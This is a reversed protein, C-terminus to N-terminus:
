ATEGEPPHDTAPTNWPKEHLLAPLKTEWLAVAAKAAERRSMGPPDDYTGGFCHCRKLQHGVSGVIGRMGCEYHIVRGSADITGTDGDVVAEACLLCVQGLPTAVQREYDKKREPRGFYGVTFPDDDDAPPIGLNVFSM